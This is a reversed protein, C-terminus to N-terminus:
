RPLGPLRPRDAGPRGLHPAPPRVGRGRAPRAGAAGAPLPGSWPAGIPLEALVDRRSLAAVLAEDQGRLWLTLDRGPVAFALWGDAEGLEVAFGADHALKALLIPSLGTM